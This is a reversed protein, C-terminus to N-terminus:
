KKDDDYSWIFAVIIALVIILILLMVIKNKRSKQKKINTILLEDKGAEIEDKIAVVNQELKDVNEGQENVIDDLIDFNQKMEKINEHIACIKEEEEELLKSTDVIQMTGVISTLSEQYNPQKKSSLLPSKEHHEVISQPKYNRFSKIASAVINRLSATDEQLENQYKTTDYKM